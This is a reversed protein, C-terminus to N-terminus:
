KVNHPIGISYLCNDTYVTQSKREWEDVDKYRDALPKRLVMIHVMEMPVTYKELIEEIDDTEVLDTLGDSCIM